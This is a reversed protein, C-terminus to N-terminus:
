ERELRNQIGFIRKELSSLEKAGARALNDIVKTRLLDNNIPEGRLNTGGSGEYDLIPEAPDVTIMVRNDSLNTVLRASYSQKNIKVNFDFNIGAGSSHIQEIKRVNRTSNDTELLYNVIYRNDLVIPGTGEEPILKYSM